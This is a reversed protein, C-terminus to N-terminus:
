KNVVNKVDILLIVVTSQIQVDFPRAELLHLDRFKCSAAIAQDTDLFGLRDSNVLLALM